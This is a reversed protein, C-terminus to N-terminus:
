RQRHRERITSARREIRARGTRLGVLRGTRDGCRDACGRLLLPALRQEAAVAWFDGGEVGRQDLEGAAALRWAVELAGDWTGAGRLPSWTHTPVGALQFPDFVLAEGLAQRRALTVGLLDTKISSAVAAGDWELLAPIALGASKGSQPTGFAIEAHRREAYLLRRGHWGLVLRGTRRGRNRDARPGSALAAAARLQRLDRGSAWRAGDSPSGFLGPLKHRMRVAFAACGVIAALLAALMGYLGASGPLRTRAARPWAAAPDGLHRPLHVLVGLLAFPQPTSPWGRGLIAGALGGWLWVVAIAAAVLAIVALMAVDGGGGVTNPSRGYGSM